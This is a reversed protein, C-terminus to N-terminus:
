IKLYLDPQKEGKFEMLAEYEVECVYERVM